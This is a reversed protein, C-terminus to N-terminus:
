PETSVEQSLRHLLGSKPVANVDFMIEKGNVKKLYALYPPLEIVQIYVVYGIIIVAVWTSIQLVVSPIKNAYNFLWWGGILVSVFSIFSWARPPGYDGMVFTIFYTHLVVVFLWAVLAYVTGKGVSLKPTTNNNSFIPYLLTLVLFIRLPAHICAIKASFYGSHILWDMVSLDPLAAERKSHGDGALAIGFSVSM